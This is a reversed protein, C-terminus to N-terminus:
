EGPANQKHSFFISFFNQKLYLENHHIKIHIYVMEPM